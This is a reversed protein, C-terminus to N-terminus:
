LEPSVDPVSSDYKEVMELKIDRDKIVNELELRIDRAAVNYSRLRDNRGVSYSIALIAECTAGREVQNLMDSANAYEERSPTSMGFNGRIGDCRIDSVKADKIPYELVKFRQAGMGGAGVVYSSERIPQGYKETVAEILGAETPMKEPDNSSVTREVRYAIQGSHWHTPYISVVKKVGPTKNDYVSTITYEQRVGVPNRGGRAAWQWTEPKKKEDAVSLTTLFDYGLPISNIDLNLGAFSSGEAPQRSEVLSESPSDEVSTEGESSTIDGSPLIGIKQILFAACSDDSIKGSIKRGESVFKGEFGVMRYGRPKDIWRRPTAVIAGNEIQYDLEFSGMIPSRGRRSQYFAFTATETGTDIKVDVDRLGGCSYHGEWLEVNEQALCVGASFCFGVVISLKRMVCGQDYNRM